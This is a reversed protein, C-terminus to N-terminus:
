DPLASAAKISILGRRHPGEPNRETEGPRTVQIM